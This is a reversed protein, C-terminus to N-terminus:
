SFPKRAPRPPEIPPGRCRPLPASLPLLAPSPASCATLTQHGPRAQPNPKGAYMVWMFIFVVRWDSQVANALRLYVLAPIVLGAAVAIVASSIRTVPGDEVSAETPLASLVAVELLACIWLSSFMLDYSITAPDKLKQYACWGFGVLGIGYSSVLSAIAQVINVAYHKKGEVSIIPVLGRERSWTGPKLHSCLVRIRLLVNLM